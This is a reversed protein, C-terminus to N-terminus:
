PYYGAGVVVPAGDLTARHTFTLKDVPATEGPRPWQYETWGSGVMAKAIYERVIYRGDEMQLGSLDQGDVEPFAPNLIEVGEPTDVFVYIDRFRFPGDAQRLLAFSQAGNRDIEAVALQVLQEVFQREVPLNLAGSGVLYRTGDPAQARRTYTTKIGRAGTAPDVWEAHGWLAPYAGSLVLDCIYYKRIDGAAVRTGRLDPFAANVVVVLDTAYVFVYRGTAKDYWPGEQNMAAFAGEGDREIAAVAEDVFAVIDKSAQNALPSHPLAAHAAAAGIWGVAWLWLGHGVTAKNM